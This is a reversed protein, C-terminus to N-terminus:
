YEEVLSTILSRSEEPGLALARLSAAALRYSRVQLDHQVYVAGEHLEVYVIDQFEAFDLLTFQGTAGVHVGVSTSIVQLEVNDLSSLELLHDLQARMTKDGGVPRHLTSEEVVASFRLPAASDTLRRQRELRFEAVREAHDPRVRPSASTLAAAYAETQLMAHLAVPEYTFEAEALGELGVFTKLWDPVLDSWPAWWTEQDSQGALSVVRDIDSPEVGYFELLRAVETADQRYKGTEMTHVKPGTRKLRKGAADLSTRSRERHRRLENGILWRLATPDHRSTM